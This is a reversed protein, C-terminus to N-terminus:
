FPWERGLRILFSWHGEWTFVLYGIGCGLKSLRISMVRPLRVELALVVLPLFRCTLDESRCTGDNV